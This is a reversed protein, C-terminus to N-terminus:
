KHNKIKDAAESLSSIVENARALDEYSIYPNKLGLCKLGAARASRIGAGSDEIAWCRDPSLGLANVSKIYVEGDPKKAKVDEGTMIVSFLNRYDIETKSAFTLKDIIVDVQERISSTALGLPIQRDRCTIILYELGSMPQVKSQKLLDLYLKERRKVGEAVPVPHAALFTENVEIVNSEVSHGVLGALFSEDARVNLDAIYRRFSEIHIPETDVLVGDMDLILAAPESM